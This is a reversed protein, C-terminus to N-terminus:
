ETEIEPALEDAHLEVFVALRSFLGPTSALFKDTLRELQGSAILHTWSHIRLLDRGQNIAAAEDMAGLEVLADVIERAHDKTANHFFATMGGREVESNAWSALVVIREKSTLGGLGVSRFKQECAGIITTSNMDPRSHGNFTNRRM